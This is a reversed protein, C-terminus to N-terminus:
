DSDLYCQYFPFLKDLANIPSRVFLRAEYSISATCVLSVKSSANLYVENNHDTLNTQYNWQAKTQENWLTGLSKDYEQLFAEAALEEKNLPRDVTLALLSQVTVLSLVALVAVKQGM